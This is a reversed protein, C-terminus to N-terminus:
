ILFTSTLMCELMNQITPALVFFQLLNGKTVGKPIVQIAMVPEQHVKSEGLEVVEVKGKFCQHNAIIRQAISRVSSATLAGSFFSPVTKGVFPLRPDALRSLIGPNKTRIGQNAKAYFKGHFIGGQQSAPRMKGAQVM